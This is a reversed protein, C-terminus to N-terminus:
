STRMHYIKFAGLKLSKKIEFGNAGSRFRSTIRGFFVCRASNQQNYTCEILCLRSYFLVLPKLIIWQKQTLKQIIKPKNSFLIWCWLLFLRFVFFDYTGMFHIKMLWLEMLWVTFIFLLFIIRKETKPTIDYKNTTLLIVSTKNEGVNEAIFINWNVISIRAHLLAM